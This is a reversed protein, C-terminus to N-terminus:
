GRFFLPHLLLSALGCDRRAGRSPRFEETSSTSVPPVIRLCAAQQQLHGQCRGEDGFSGLVFSCRLLVVSQDVTRAGHGRRFEETSTTLYPIGTVTTVTRNTRLGATVTQQERRTPPHSHL